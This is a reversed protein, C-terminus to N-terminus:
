SGCDFGIYTGAFGSTCKFDVTNAICKFRIQFQFFMKFLLANPTLKFFSTYCSIGLYVSFADSTTNIVTHSIASILKYAIQVCVTLLKCM